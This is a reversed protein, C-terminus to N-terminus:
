EHNSIRRPTHLELSDKFAWFHLTPLNLFNLILVAIPALLWWEFSSLAYYAYLGLLFSFVIGVFVYTVQFTRKKSEEEYTQEFVTDTIAINTVVGTAILSFVFACIVHIVGNIPIGTTLLAVVALLIYNIVRVVENNFFSKDKFVVM